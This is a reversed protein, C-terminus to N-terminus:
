WPDEQGQKSLFFFLVVVRPIKVHTRPISSLNEYKHLLCKNAMEGVRFYGGVSVRMTSRSEDAGNWVSDIHIEELHAETILM